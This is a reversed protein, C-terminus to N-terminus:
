GDEGVPVAAGGPVRRVLGALELELLLAQVMATSAHSVATLHDLSAGAGTGAHKSVILDLLAVAGASPLAADTLQGRRTWPSGWGSPRSVTKKWATPFRAGALAPVAGLDSPRCLATAGRGLLDNSGASRTWHIDAPVVFLPVGLQKALSATILAGSGFEAQIVIVADSLAAVLRNREPFFRPHSPMGPAYESILCNGPTHAIRNFLEENSPPHPMDFGSGLVCMTRGGAKLASEHAVTDIGIAGGSVIVVGCGALTAAFAAATELGYDDARRPGVIAVRPVSLDPEGTVLLVEPADAKLRERLLGTGCRWYRYGGQRMAAAERRMFIGADRLTVDGHVCAMLRIGACEPDDPPRIDPPETLICQM